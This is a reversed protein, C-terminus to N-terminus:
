TCPWYFSPFILDYWHRKPIEKLKARSFSVWADKKCRPCKFSVISREKEGDYGHKFNQHPIDGTEIKFVTKCVECGMELGIWWDSQLLEYDPDSKKVIIM